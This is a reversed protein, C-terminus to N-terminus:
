SAYIDSFGSILLKIRILQTLEQLSPKNATENQM